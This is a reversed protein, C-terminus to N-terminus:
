DRRVVYSAPLFLFVDTPGARAWEVPRDLGTVSVGYAQGFTAVSSAGDAAILKIIESRYQDPNVVSLTPEGIAAVQTRGVKRSADVFAVIRAKATQLAMGPVLRIKILVTTADTDPRGDGALPLLVVAAPTLPELVYDGTVLELGATGAGAIMARITAYLDDRRTRM